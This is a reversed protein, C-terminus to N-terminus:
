NRRSRRNSRRRTKSRRSKARRSKTRRSKRAVRKKTSPRRRRRKSRRRRKGGGLTGEEDIANKYRIYEGMGTTSEGKYDEDFKKIMFNQLDLNKPAEKLIYDSAPGIIKGREMLIPDIWILSTDGSIYISLLKEIMKDYEAQKEAETFKKLTIPSKKSM